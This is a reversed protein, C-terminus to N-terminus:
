EVVSLITDEGRPIGLLIAENSRGFPDLLVDVPEGLCSDGVQVDIDRDGTGSDAQGSGRLQM